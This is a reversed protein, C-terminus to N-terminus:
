KLIIAARTKISYKKLVGLIYKIYKSVDNCAISCENFHYLYKKAYIHPHIDSISIGFSMEM